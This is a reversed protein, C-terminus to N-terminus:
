DRTMFKGKKYYNTGKYYEKFFKNNSYYFHNLPLPQHVPDSLEAPKSFSLEAEIAVDLARVDFESPNILTVLELSDDVYVAFRVTEIPHDIEPLDSLMSFLWEKLHQEYGKKRIYIHGNGVTVGLEPYAEIINLALQILYPRAM